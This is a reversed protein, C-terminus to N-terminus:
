IDLNKVTLANQEIFLRRPEVQDGMLVSFLQDTEVADQITVQRLVRAAPNMTTEWLQTPNMEGLGKFRQITLGRRGRADVFDWLADADALDDKLADPSDGAVYPAAGISRVDQEISLLEHWEGGEVLEYDIISTRVAAGSRSKVTIRGAGHEADDSVGIAIPLMDPYRKEIAARIDDVAKDLKPRDRLLKADVLTSRVAAAFVRADGRRELKGLAQRFRRLRMVLNFLVEGMLAVGGAQSRVVLGDTGNQILFLDLEEQDKKYIEKKKTKVLFLPPQAIFLHGREVLERMQRFFFTLLLTRIHSGDVDADTNHCCLGGLGAVFNEDGEVSFDYVNGNTAEVAEISVIPMSVLDGGVIDFRRNSGLAKAKVRERVTAANAHSAWLPELKAVDDRATVTLTFWSSKTEIAAGRIERVVGDPQHESISAVVGFSALVYQIGSAVHRSSTAFAVRDDAATGDGLFYGRLFAMRLDDGVNFVIDPLRKSLSDMDVFGFVHQWALAAVRNVLRIEGARDVSEYSRADLGFVRAFAAGMEPLLAQNRAGMSLRIGNRDSCSGEAVYFGLLTMLEPTVDVFRRIGAKGYHEPTLELDERDAFFELDEAYLASLRVYPRVRNRPAGTYQEEWVRDLKSPGVTVRSLAEDVNAGIATLYALFAPETPRSTGKEWGYFTVPQKIGVRACLEVNSVGSARRTASLEARVDAPIDVRPATMQEDHAHEARVRAKFWDEVAAGRVWVQEAASPVAHLSRLLDIRKAAGEGFRITRPAVVRDGVRLEDGRALVVDGDRHVFVSHSATVRVSRGYATRVEYLTEQIPHRIVAKIPRFKTQHDDLGFCLVEGLDEHVRRAVGHDDASVGNLSRDIFEGIEVMKVVGRERVFVHERADVSMIIVSHYRLKEIDFGSEGIGCGLATILTGIEASSLMKDLRAREVNLIKGRLPLIAQFRRERGQKASGGASDGEVIYLECRAPDKDQCDALKGSISLPDLASKRVVERAKRAAERAKAAMIAKELIKRATPPNEELFQGLKESVVSEVIGKVESSVLKSKTQSDFSPDPHKVSIIATLGERVDEGTLGAKVEKLLNQTTAYHTITRTLGGRLGTLHTGGDKNHVNNTYCFIQEAYSGNWQLAIEVDVKDQELRFYVVHEHIPEKAKNLLEVFERIGGKFEFIHDRGDAREDKFEIILGANLYAIERLRAVIIENNFDSVDGPQTAFIHPDPKFTIKTGTRDSKGIKAIPAQPVGRAYDQRYVFGDRHIELKLFEAVANVASVGVGHLGASVKYSDHDFKGGAHLVTMVVEAASVGKQHMDTPIGRGDDEISISGDFHITVCIKKCHGALHEDVSNDVAEWVLHHLGSGDHVDGIYMGPRKRVAELGELVQINSAAYDAPNTSTATSTQPAQPDAM